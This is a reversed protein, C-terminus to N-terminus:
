LIEPLRMSMPSVPHGHRSIYRMSVETGRGQTNRPTYLEGSTRQKLVELQRSCSPIAMGMRRSQYPDEAFMPDTTIRFKSPQKCHPVGFDLENECACTSFFPVQVPQLLHHRLFLNPPFEM